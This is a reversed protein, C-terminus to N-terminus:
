VLWPFALPLSLIDKVSTSVRCQGLTHYNTRKDRIVLCRYGYVNLYLYLSWPAARPKVWVIQHIDSYFLGLKFVLIQIGMFLLSFLFFSLFFNTFWYTVLIWMFKYDQYRFESAYWMLTDYSLLHIITCEFSHHCVIASDGKWMPVDDAGECHM